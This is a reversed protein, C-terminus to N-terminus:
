DKRVCGVVNDGTEPKEGIKKAVFEVIKHVDFRSSHKAMEARTTTHIVRAIVEDSCDM